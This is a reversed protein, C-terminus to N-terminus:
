NTRHDHAFEHNPLWSIQSLAMNVHIQSKTIDHDIGKECLKVGKNMTQMAPQFVLTESRDRTPTKDHNHDCLSYQLWAWIVPQAM